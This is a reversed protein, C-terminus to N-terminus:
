LRFRGVQVQLENGLRALESSSGATQESAAASQEAIERVQVVSRNIEEAVSSQQEAASAIQLNMGQIDAVTRAIEGLAEGARRTLEVSSGTLRRSDDMRAVAEQAGRQLGAILGEIEATSQQTRKALGRVEDAVVAFGRGAEGARAAEIAANLALLNTQEAVSKIVDLVSGIKESEQRLSEMAEASRDVESALRDIQAVADRVVQDGQRAQQDAQRAALSAQEANRAVEQVTAAMEHIASAVQETEVRQANVGARTQETVASLEDAATALQGVSGGLQGILRALNERMRLMVRQLQGLEDPRQLNLDRALGRSLDGEAIYEALELAEHLPRVIQRNIAWGSLLGFALALVAILILRTKAAATEESNRQLTDDYLRTSAGLMAQSADDLEQRAQQTATVGSRSLGNFAARYDTVAQRAASLQTADIDSGSLRREILALMKSSYQEVREAQARDGGLEFQLRALNAQQGLNSLETLAALQEGRRAQNDLSRLGGLLVLLTLFLLIGFGVVLKLSVNLRGLQVVLWDYM